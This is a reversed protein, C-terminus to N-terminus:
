RNYANKIASDIYALVNERKLGKMEQEKMKELVEGNSIKDVVKCAKKDTMSQLDPVAEPEPISKDSEEVQGWGKDSSEDNTLPTEEPVIEMWVPSFHKYKRYGEAQKNEYEAKQKQNMKGPYFGVQNFIARNAILYERRERDTMASGDAKRAITSIRRGESDEHEVPDSPITFVTGAFVMGDQGGMATTYFGSPAEGQGDPSPIRKARVKITDSAM